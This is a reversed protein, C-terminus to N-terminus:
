GRYFGNGYTLLNILYDISKASFYVTTIMTGINLGRNVQVGYYLFVFYGLMLVRDSGIIMVVVVLPIFLYFAQKRNRAYFLTLAMVVLIKALDFLKIETEYAALKHLIHPGIAVALLGGLLFLSFLSKSLVGKSILRELSEMANVFAISLYSILMQAHSMVSTFLLLYFSKAKNIYIISWIFFIFGYKLREASFYLVNFYFSTTIIVFAIIKLTNLKCFLAAAFYALFANSLAVFFDKDFGLSSFLWSLLFHLVEKSDINIFYFALAELFPQGGIEGYIYRYHIQDGDTAYPSLIISYLFIFLACCIKFLSNSKVKM